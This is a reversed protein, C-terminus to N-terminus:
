LFFATYIDRFRNLSFRRREGGMGSFRRKAEAQFVAPRVRGDSKEFSHCVGEIRIQVDDDARTLDL